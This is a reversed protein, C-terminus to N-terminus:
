SWTLLTYSKTQTGRDTHTNSDTVTDADANADTGTGTGTDTDTDTDTDTHMHTLTQRCPPRDVKVHMEKKEAVAHKSASHFRSCRRMPTAFASGHAWCVGM